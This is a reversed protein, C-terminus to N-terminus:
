FPAVVVGVGCVEEVVHQSARAILHQTLERKNVLFLMFLALPEVIKAVMHKCITYLHRVNVNIHWNGM